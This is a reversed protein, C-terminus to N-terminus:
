IFITKSSAMARVEKFIRASEKVGQTHCEEYYPLKALTTRWESIAQFEKLNRGLIEMCCISSLVFFDLLTLHNGFVYKQGSLMKETEELIANVKPFLDEKLDGTKGAFIENGNLYNLMTHYNDIDRFMIRNFNAIETVGPTPYLKQKKDNPEYKQCLYIVIARSESLTFAGDVITPLVKYKNIASYSEEKQAGTLLDVVNAKHPIGLERLVMWVVQSPFSTPHYYFKLSM